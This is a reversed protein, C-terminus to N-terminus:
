EYLDEKISEISFKEKDIFLMVVNHASKEDMHEISFEVARPDNNPIYKLIVKWNKM